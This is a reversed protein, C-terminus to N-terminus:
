RPKLTHSTASNSSLWLPQQRRMPQRHICRHGAVAYVCGVAKAIHAADAAVSQM